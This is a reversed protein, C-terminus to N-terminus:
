IKKVRKNEFDGLFTLIGPSEYKSKKELWAHMEELGNESIEGSILTLIESHSGKLKLWVCIVRQIISHVTLHFIGVETYRFIILNQGSHSFWLSIIGM